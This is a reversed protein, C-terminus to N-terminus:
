LMLRAARATAQLPGLVRALAEAASEHQLALTVGLAGVVVGHLDPLPVAVSRQGSALQQESLAWGQERVTALTQRLRARSTQTHPTWATLAAGALWDDLAALPQAALLVLGAANLRAPVRAGPLYGTGLAPVPGNRAVAVVEDGDLVSLYAAEGTATTIRQLFPQVARPLRASQLYCQGLRLVRPTPWYLKGDSAVFGLHALTLLLRRAVTRTMGCRQGAQSATLRPHDEDFAQLLTLGKELGAIWDRRQLPTAVPSFPEPSLM